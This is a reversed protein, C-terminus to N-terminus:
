TEKGFTYCAIRMLHIPWSRKEFHFDIRFKANQTMSDMMEQARNTKPIENSLHEVM